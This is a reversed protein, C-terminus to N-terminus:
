VAFSRVRPMPAIGTCVPIGAHASALVIVSAWAAFSSTRARMSALVIQSVGGLGHWAPLAVAVPGAETAVEFHDSPPVPRQAFVSMIPKRRSDTPEGIMGRAMPLM